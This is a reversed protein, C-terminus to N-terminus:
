PSDSGFVDDLKWPSDAAPPEPPAPTAGKKDGKAKRGFKGKRPPKQQAIAPPLADADLPVPVDPDNPNVPLESRSPPAFLPVGGSPPATPSDFPARPRREALPGGSAPDQGGAASSSPPEYDEPEDFEINWQIPVTLPKAEPPEEGPPTNHVIRPEDAASSPRPPAPPPYTFESSAAPVDTPPAPVGSPPPAFSPPPPPASGAPPPPPVAAPPPAPPANLPPAFPAQGAPPQEIASDASAAPPFLSPREPAVGPQPQASGQSGEPPGAPTEPAPEPTAAPEPAAVAEHAPEPAPTHAAPPQPPSIHAQAEPAPEPTQPAEPEGAAASGPEQDPDVWAHVAPRYEGINAIADERSRPQGAADGESQDPEADEPEADEPATAPQDDAGGGGDTADAVPGDDGSMGDGSMGDGSMDDSTADDSAPRDPGADNLASEAAAATARATAAEEAARMAAELESMPDEAQAGDAGDADAADGPSGESTDTIADAEAQSGDGAAFANADGVPTAVAAGLWPGAAGVASDDAKPGADTEAPSDPKPEGEAEAAGDGGGGGEGGSDADGEDDADAAADPAPETPEDVATAEAQAEAPADAEKEAEPEPDADQAQAAAEGVPADSPADLAVQDWNEPPGEFKHHWNEELGPSYVKLKYIEAVHALAPDYTVIADVSKNSVAAGIHLAAFPKLVTTAHSSLEVTDDSFRLTKVQSRVLTVIANVDDAWDRPYLEAAQRLETFGLQTTVLQDFRGDVWENWADAYRVGPLFRCLASGDLYIM